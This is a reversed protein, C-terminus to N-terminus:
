RLRGTDVREPSEAPETFTGANRAHRSSGPTSRRSTCAVRSDLLRTLIAYLTHSYPWQTVVRGGPSRYYNNCGSSWAKGENGKDVWGNFRRFFSSRVEFASGPRGAARRVLRGIWEAQRELSFMISGANTNPGYMMFFNPFGPVALGMFARPETGWVEHISRGGVGVVDLTALYNTPQFGTAIVLVDVEREIGAADIVGTASIREVARPVVTVNERTLAAYFTSALVPRKCYFPSTPTVADRVAPDDISATIHALAADHARTNRKSGLDRSSGMREITWLTRLRRYRRLLASRSLRERERANYDHEGKPLVWGAERQFLTVHAAIPAIAPVVQAATSGTGVVAVRKGALDVDHNWRATHFSAGAFDALGPWDPVRPHNLTGLASVVFEFEHANGDATRLTYRHAAQDWVIERVATQFRLHPRIAFTDIVAEIYLQIEPATAHTRAWDHSMFSYTYLASPIDVEAGPYRNDWWTGGPGSSQEFVTFNDLGRRKLWVAMAIGGVGAGIIAVRPAGNHDHNAEGVGIADVETVSM